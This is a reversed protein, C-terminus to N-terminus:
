SMYNMTSSKHVRHEEKNLVKCTILKENDYL